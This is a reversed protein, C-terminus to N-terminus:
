SQTGSNELGSKYERKSELQGNDYYYVWKGEKKGDKISGQRKGTIEGTFPVDTFKKYYLDNREVLDDVTLTESWSTLAFVILCITLLTQKM